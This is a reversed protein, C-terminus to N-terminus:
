GQDMEAAAAEAAVDADTFHIGNANAYGNGNADAQILSSEAAQIGASYDDFSTRSGIM